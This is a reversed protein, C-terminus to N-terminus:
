SDLLCRKKKNQAMKNNAIFVDYAESATNAWTHGNAEFILKVSRYITAGFM